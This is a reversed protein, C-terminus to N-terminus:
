EFIFLNKVPVNFALSIKELTDFSPGYIGREINSISEITVGVENALDEQTMKAKHRLTQVRKGFQSKLQGM